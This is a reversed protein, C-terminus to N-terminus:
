LSQFADRGAFLRTSRLAIRLPTPQFSEGSVPPSRNTAARHISRLLSQPPEDRRASSSLNIHVRRYSSVGALVPCPLGRTGSGLSARCCADSCLLRPLQALGRRVQSEARRRDFCSREALASAGALARTLRDLNNVDCALMSAVPGQRRDARDTRLEHASVRSAIQHIIKMM